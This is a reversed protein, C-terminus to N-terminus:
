TGREEGNLGEGERCVPAGVCIGSVGQSEGGGRTSQAHRGGHLIGLHVLQPPRDLRQPSRLDTIVKNVSGSVEVM